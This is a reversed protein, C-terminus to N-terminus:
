EFPHGRRGVQREEGMTRLFSVCLISISNSVRSTRILEYTESSKQCYMRNRSAPLLRLTVAKRSTSESSGCTVRKWLCIICSDDCRHTHREVPHPRSHSFLTVCLYLPVYIIHVFPSLAQIASSIVIFTNAMPLYQFM